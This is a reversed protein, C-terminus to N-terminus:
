EMRVLKMIIMRILQLVCVSKLFHCKLTSCLPGQEDCQWHSASWFFSESSILACSMQGGSAAQASLRVAWFSHGCTPAGQTMLNYLLMIFPGSTVFTGPTRCMPCCHCWKLVLCGGVATQFTILCMARSKLDFHVLFSWKLTPCDAKICSSVIM